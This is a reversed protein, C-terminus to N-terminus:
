GLSIREGDVRVDQEATVIAQQGHMRLLTKVQVAFTDLQAIYHRANDILAERVTTLVNRGSVAVDGAVATVDVDHLSQLSLTESAQIALRPAQLTLESVGAVEIHAASNETRTLVALVFRNGNACAVTLVRDGIQPRVLCSVAIHALAGDDLQWAGDLTEEVVVAEHWLPVDIAWRRKSLAAAM